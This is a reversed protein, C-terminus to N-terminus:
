KQKEFQGFGVNIMIRPEEFVDYDECTDAKNTGYFVYKTDLFGGM